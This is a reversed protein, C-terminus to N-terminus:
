ERQLLGKVFERVLQVVARVPHPDRDLPNKCQGTRGAEGGPRLRRSPRSGEDIHAARRSGSDRAAPTCGSPNRSGMPQKLSLFPCELTNVGDPMRM